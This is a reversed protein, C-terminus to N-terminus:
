PKLIWRLDKDLEEKTYNFPINRKKLEKLAERYTIGALDAAKWLSISGERYLEMAKKIRFNKISERLFKRIIIGKDMGEEKSIKELEDIIDKSLRISTTIM